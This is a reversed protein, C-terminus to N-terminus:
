EPHVEKDEVALLAKVLVRIGMMPVVMPVVVVVVVVLRVLRRPHDRHRQNQQGDRRDDDAEHKYLGHQKTVEELVHDKHVSVPVRRHGLKGLDEVAGRGHCQVAQLSSREPQSQGAHRSAPASRSAPLRSAHRTQSFSCSCAPM